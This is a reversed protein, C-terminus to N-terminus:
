AKELNAAAAHHIAGCVGGGALLSENASNIIVDDARATIDGHELDIPVPNVLTLFLILNNNYPYCIISVIL